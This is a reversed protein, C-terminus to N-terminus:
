GQAILTNKVHNFLLNGYSVMQSTTFHRPIALRWTPNHNADRFFFGGQRIMLARFKITEGTVDLCKAKIDVKVMLQTTHNEDLCCAEEGVQLSSQNVIRFVVM